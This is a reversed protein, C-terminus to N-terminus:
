VLIRKWIRKGKLNNWFISCLKRHLATPGQQNGIKFIVTHIYWGWVGLRDRGELKGEQYGYIWKSSDTETKHMEKKLNWMYAIGYTNKKETQSLGSPIIIELNMWTASSPMIGNKLHSSLMRSYTHIVGQKLKLGENSIKPYPTEAIPHLASAKNPHWNM